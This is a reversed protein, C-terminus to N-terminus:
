YGRSKFSKLLDDASMGEVKLAASKCEEDLKKIQEDIKSSEAENNLIEASNKKQREKLDRFEKELELVKIRDNLYALKKRLASGSVWKYIIWGIVILVSLIISVTIVTKLVPNM